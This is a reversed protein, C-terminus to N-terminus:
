IKSIIEIESHQIDELSNMLEPSISAFPWERLPPNISISAEFSIRKSEDFILADPLVCPPRM